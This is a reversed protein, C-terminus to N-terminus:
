RSILVCQNHTCLVRPCHLFQMWDLAGRWSRHKLAGGTAGATLVWSVADSQEHLILGDEHLFDVFAQDLEIVRSAPALAAYQPYWCGYSCEWLGDQTARSDGEPPM